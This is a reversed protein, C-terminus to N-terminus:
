RRSHHDGRFRSKGSSVAPLHGAHHTRVPHDDHRSDSERSAAGITSAVCSWLGDRINAVMSEDGTASGALDRIQSSLVVSADQARALVPALLVVVLAAVIRM